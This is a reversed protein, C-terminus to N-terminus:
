VPSTVGGGKEGPSVVSEVEKRRGKMERKEEETIIANVRDLPTGVGGKGHGSVTGSWTTAVKIKPKEPEPPPEMGGIMPFPNEGSWGLVM